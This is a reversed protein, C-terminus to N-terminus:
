QTEDPDDVSFSLSNDDVFLGPDSFFVLCPISHPYRSICVTCLSHRLWHVPSGAHPRQAFPTRAGLIVAEIRENWTTEVYHYNYFFYFILRTGHRM